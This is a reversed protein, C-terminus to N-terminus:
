KGKRSVKLYCFGGTRSISDQIAAKLTKLKWQENRFLPRRKEARDWFEPNISRINVERFTLANPNDSINPSIYWGKDGMGGVFFYTFCGTKNYFSHAVATFHSGCYEPFEQVKYILDYEETLFGFLEFIWNRM